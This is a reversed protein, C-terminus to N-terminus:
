AITAGKWIGGVRVWLKNGTSDAVITGNPPAVTWDADVPTGAKVKTALALTSADILDDTKLRDAAGRYLTTDQPNTGDGWFMQGDAQIYWRNQSEGTVFTEFTGASAARVARFASSIALRGASSRQLTADQTATGDGWALYGDARVYFRSQADTTVRHDILQDAAAAGFLRVAGKINSAGIWLLGPGGRLVAVDQTATGDGWRMQGDTRLYFRLQADTTVLGEMITDAALGGYARLSGKQTTSGLHLRGAAGRTLTVDPASAGGAGWQMQGSGLV